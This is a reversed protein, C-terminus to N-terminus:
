GVGLAANTLPVLNQSNEAILIMKYCAMIPRSMGGPTGSTQCDCSAREVLDKREYSLRGTVHSIIEKGLYKDVSGM